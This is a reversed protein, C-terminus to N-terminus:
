FGLMSEATHQNAQAWFKREDGRMMLLHAIVDDTPVLCGAFTKEYYGVPHFCLGCLLRLQFTQPDHRLALTPRLRRFLYMVQSRKSREVFLGTMTYQKFQHDTVLSGLKVQAKLEADVDWATLALMTDMVLRLQEDAKKCKLRWVIRQRGSQDNVGLYEETRPNHRILQAAETEGYREKQHAEYEADHERAFSFGNLGQRAYRPEIVLNIGTIPLPCGAWISEEASLRRLANRIQDWTLEQTETEATSM